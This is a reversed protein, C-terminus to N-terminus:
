IKSEVAADSSRWQTVQAVTDGTIQMSSELLIAKTDTRTAGPRRAAAGVLVPLLLVALLGEAPTGEM